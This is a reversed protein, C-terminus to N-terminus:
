PGRSHKLAAARRRRFDQIEFSSMRREVLRQLRRCALWIRLSRIVARSRAYRSSSRGMNRV